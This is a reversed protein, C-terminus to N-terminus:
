KPRGRQLLERLERKWNHIVIAQTDGGVPRLVLFQKGDPSVDYSPHTPDAAESSPLVLRRAGLTIEAGVSLAVATIGGPARYYLTRGSADWLPESGGENSVQVRAGEGPFPRVYIEARGGQDSQYALWRGDPSLRPMIESTPGIAMPRLTRDGKLDVAFIDRPTKGGPATRVLLWREDASLVAENLAPEAEFLVDAPASGDIRQWMIRISGTPGDDVGGTRVTKYLVRRGDATWEPASNLGETTLRTFTGAVRDLIWIDERDGNRISVAIRQGNPSFRPNRYTASDSRLLQDAGVGALALHFASYGPRYALTGSASLGVGEVARAITLPEGISKNSNVDFPIASLDGGDSQVLLQGEVIGLAQSARVGTEALQGDKLSVVMLRMLDRTGTAVLVSKGDPLLLPFRAWAPKTTDTVARVVGGRASIAFLGVDSGILLQDDPTWALASASLNGRTASVSTLQRLKGLLESRGGTAAVRLIDEGDTYALWKGDPSFVLNQLSTASLETYADIEGVRQVLTRYGTTSQTVYALQDGTPSLAVPFGNSMIRETPPPEIKTRVVPTDTIDPPRTMAFAMAALAGAAVVWATAERWVRKGGASPTAGEAAAYYRAMTSADGKGQLAQAFEGATAFRDAALKELARRVAADVPIPVSRRQTTLPRVEETMLRAIIAQATSGIHPPEGTLMEYTMAGLSYIDTRADVVRDGTAQEPSMYQPTGLSLGTQTVRQGGAKSVALAIGFDAVLPQGDALLINEPKLDRHIVGRRHAYDLAQAIAVSLRVAEDVPLQKERELRARLTEGDVFPMVYFLLGGAEGSEFLPLLNPHQLNATVRIESLFREVGLVAGLEPKLVKIAVDREHKLDHAL